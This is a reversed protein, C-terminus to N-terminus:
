TLVAWRFEVRTEDKFLQCYNDIIDIIQINISLYSLNNNM